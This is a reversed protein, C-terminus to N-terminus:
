ADPVVPEDAVARSVSLQGGPYHSAARDARALKRLVPMRVRALSEPFNGAMACMLVQIEHATLDVPITPDSM